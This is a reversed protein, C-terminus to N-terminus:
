GRYQHYKTKNSIGLNSYNGYAGYYSSIFRAVEKCGKEHRKGRIIYFYYNKVNREM